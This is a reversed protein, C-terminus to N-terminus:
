LNVLVDLWDLGVVEPMRIEVELHPHEIAMREKFAMAAEYSTGNEDNDAFVIIKRLTKLL